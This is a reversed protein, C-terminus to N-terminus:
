LIFHAELEQGLKEIWANQKLPFEVREAGGDMPIREHPMSGYSLCVYTDDQIPSFEDDASSLLIERLEKTEGDTFDITEKKVLPKLQAAEIELALGGHKKVAIMATQQDPYIAIAIQPKFSGGELGFEMEDIDLVIYIRVWIKM